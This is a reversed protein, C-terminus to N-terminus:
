SSKRKGFVFSRGGWLTRMAVGLSLKGNGFLLGVSSNRVDSSLSAAGLGVRAGLKYRMLRNAIRCGKLHSNFERRFQKEYAELGDSLAKPDALVHSTNEALLIGARMGYYIGEGSFPNIMAGADGILAIQESQLAPPLKCPLTYTKREGMNECAVGRENLFDVYGDLLRDLDPKRKQYDRVSLWCGINAKGDPLPFCWGYGPLLNEGYSLILREQWNQSISAYGRIAIGTDAKEPAPIGAQKRVRSNAGDAGVLLQTAFAMDPEDGTTTFTVDMMGNDLRKYKSFRMNQFLDAGAELAANLLHDDFDTRRAVVGYAFDPDAADLEAQFVLNDLGHIEAKSVKNNGPIDLATIGLQELATIAAPSIGDGCTKDRPFSSKDILAVKLEPNNRLFSIACATGAPGAGVILVDYDLSAPFDPTDGSPM